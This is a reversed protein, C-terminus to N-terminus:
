GYHSMVLIRCRVATKLWHRWNNVSVHHVVKGRLSTFHVHRKTRNVVKRYEIGSFYIRQSQTM